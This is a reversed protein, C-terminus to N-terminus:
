GHCKRSASNVDLFAVNFHFLHANFYNQFPKSAGRFRITKMVSYSTQSM